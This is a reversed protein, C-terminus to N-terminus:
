VRRLRGLAEIPHTIRARNHWAKGPGVERETLSDVSEGQLVLRGSLLYSTEDKHEHFQFSPRHGENRDLITAVHQDTVAALDLLGM